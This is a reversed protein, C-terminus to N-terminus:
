KAPADKRDWPRKGSADRDWPRATSSDKAEAKERERDAKVQERISPDAKPASIGGTTQAMAPSMAGPFMAILLAALLPFKM